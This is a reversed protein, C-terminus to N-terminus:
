GGRHFPWTVVRWLRGVVSPKQPAAVPEPPGDALAAVVGAHRAKQRLARLEHKLSAVEATLTDARENATTALAAVGTVRDDVVGRKVEAEHRAGLLGLAAVIITGIQKRDFWAAAHHAIKARTM